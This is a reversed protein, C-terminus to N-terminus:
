DSNDFCGHLESCTCMYSCKGAFDMEEEEEEVEVDIIPSLRLGGTLGLTTEPRGERSGLSRDSNLRLLYCLNRHFSGLLFSQTSPPM